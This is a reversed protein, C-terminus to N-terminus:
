DRSIKEANMSLLTVGALIYTRLRDEVEANSVHDATPKYGYGVREAHSKLEEVLEERVIDRMFLVAEHTYENM